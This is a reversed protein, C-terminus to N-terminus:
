RLVTDPGKFIKEVIVSRPKLSSVSHKGLGARRRCYICFFQKTYQPSISKMKWRETCSHRSSTSCQLFIGSRYSLILRLPKPRKSSTMNAEMALSHPVYANVYWQRPQSCMRIDRRKDLKKLSIRCTFLHSNPGTLWFFSTCFVRM